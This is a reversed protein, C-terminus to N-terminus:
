PSPTLIASWIVSVITPESSPIVEVSINEGAAYLETNSTDNGSTASGAITCTIGTAVGNNLVNFTYSNGTGPAASISVYFNSITGALPMPVRIETSVTSDAQYGMPIYTTSGNSVYSSSGGGVVIPGMPGEPGIPGEPGQPGEPGTAGTAGMPGIEGQIGQAGAPGAPGTPGEPGTAGDAGAPGAPGTPGEPGTAGAAGDAGAPGTPGMPGEPGMPGMPGEPGM